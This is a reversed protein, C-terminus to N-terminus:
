PNRDYAESFLRMFVDLMGHESTGARAKWATEYHEWLRTKRSRMVSAVGKDPELAADIKAPDLEDLLKALAAQMATFVGLQHKKLDHFSSELAKHPPLYSQTPPGFLIRLADATTPSFRLPNNDVAQIMTMNSSRMAGKSQARAMHLQRLNDATMRVFVGLLEALAQEDEAAILSPDIGAGRAFAARFDGSPARAAPRAPAPRATPEPASAASLPAFPPAVPMAVSAPEAEVLDIRNRGPPPQVPEGPPQPAAQLPAAQARPPVADDVDSPGYSQRGHIQPAPDAATQSAPGAALDAAVQAFPEPQVIPQPPWQVDPAVAPSPKASPLDLLWDFRDFANLGASISPQRLAQPNIAPAAPQQIDWLSTPSPAETRQDRPAADDEEPQVTVSIIYRGIEIRDGTKLAHLGDVRFESGNIFTGNTSVDALWYLGDRFRIECHKGSIFRTPDPLVWDLYQDRGIDLGRRSTVTISVPGGDPLSTENDIRLHLPM